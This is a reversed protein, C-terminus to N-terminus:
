KKLVVQSLKDLLIQRKEASWGQLVKNQIANQIDQEFTVNSGFRYDYTGKEQGPNRTVIIEDLLRLAVHGRVDFKNVEEWVPSVCEIHTSKNDPSYWFNSVIAYQTPSEVFSKVDREDQTKNRLIIWTSRGSKAYEIEDGVQFSRYLADTQEIPRLQNREAFSQYFCGANVTEIIIKGNVDNYVKTVKATYKM